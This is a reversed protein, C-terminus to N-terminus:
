NFPELRRLRSPLFSQFSRVVWTGGSVNPLLRRIPELPRRDSLKPAGHADDERMSGCAANQQSDGQERDQDAGQALGCNPLIPQSGAGRQGHDQNDRERQEDNYQNPAPSKQFQAGRLSILRRLRQRFTLRAQPESLGRGVDSRDIPVEHRVSRDPTRIELLHEAKRAIREGAGRRVFRDQREDMGVVLRVHVCHQQPQEFGSAGEALLEADDLRIPRDAPHGGATLHNAILFSPRAPEDARIEVNRLLAYAFFAQFPTKGNDSERDFGSFGADPCAVEGRSRADAVLPSARDEIPRVLAAADSKLSQPLANMGAIAFADSHHDDRRQFRPFIEREFTADETAVAHHSPDANAALGLMIRIGAQRRRHRADNQVDGFPPLAFGVKPSKQALERMARLVQKATM